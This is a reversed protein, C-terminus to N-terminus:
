GCVWWALFVYDQPTEFLLEVEHWEDRFIIGDTASQIEFDVLSNKDTGSNWESVCRKRIEDFGVRSLKGELEDLTLKQFLYSDLEPTMFHQIMEVVNEKSTETLNWDQGFHLVHTYLIIFAEFRDCALEKDLIFFRTWDSHDDYEIMRVKKFVARNMYTNVLDLSSSFKLLSIENKMNVIRCNVGLNM